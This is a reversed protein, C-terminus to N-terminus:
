FDKLLRKLPNTGQSTPSGKTWLQFVIESARRRAHLENMGLAVCQETVQQALRRHAWSCSALAAIMCAVGFVFTQDDGGSRYLWGVASVLGLWGLVTLAFFGRLDVVAQARSGSIRLERGSREFQPASAPGGHPTWPSPTSPSM